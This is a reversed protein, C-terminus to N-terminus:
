GPDALNAMVHRHLLPALREMDRARLCEIIAFHDAAARALLTSTNRQRTVNLPLRSRLDFILRVLERNSCYRLMVAHFEHNAAEQEAVTGTTLSDAFRQACGTLEALAAEDMRPMLDEAAAVELIARIRRIEDMREESIEEVRYGRNVERRVLGKEVLRDLAQRLDIRSCGYQEELDIQKLWARPGLQGINIDRELLGAIESPKPRATRKSRMQDM